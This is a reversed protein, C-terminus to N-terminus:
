PIKEMRRAEKMESTQKDAAEKVVNPAARACASSNAMTFGKERAAETTTPTQLPAPQTNIVAPSAM